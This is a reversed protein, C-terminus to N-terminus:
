EAATETEATEELGTIEFIWFKDGIWGVYAGSNLPAEVEFYYGNEEDASRKKLNINQGPMFFPIDYDVAGRKEFFLENGGKELVRSDLPHLSFLNFKYDGKVFVGKFDSSDLIAETASSLTYRRDKAYILTSNSVRGNNTRVIRTTATDAKVMPLFRDAKTLVYAGDYEALEIGIEEVPPAKSGCSSLFISAIVAFTISIITKM